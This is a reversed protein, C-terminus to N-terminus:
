YDVHCSESNGCKQLKQIHKVVGELSLPELVKPPVERDGDEGVGLQGLLASLAEEEDM